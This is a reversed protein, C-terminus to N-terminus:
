RLGRDLCEIEKLAAKTPLGDPGPTTHKVVPELLPSELISAPTVTRRDWPISGFFFCRWFWLRADDSRDVLERFTEVRGIEVGLVERYIEYAFKSCFEGRSDFDFGLSYRLGMRRDAAKKLESAMEESVGERMREIAFLGSASRMLFSSLPTYVVRPIRSEAVVWRDIQNKFLVGVHSTWTRTLHAVQGYLYSGSRIFVLDGASLRENDLKSIM